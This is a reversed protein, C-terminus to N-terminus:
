SIQKISVTTAASNTTSSDPEVTLAVANGAAAVMALLFNPAVADIIVSGSQTVGVNVGTEKKGIMSYPLPIMAPITAGTYLDIGGNEAYYSQYNVEYRGVNALTFLTGDGGNFFPSTPGFITPTATIVPAGSLDTTTFVFPQAPQRTSPQAGIQSFQASSISIGAGAVGTAGALGTAGTSGAGTSGTNGTSGPLGTAGIAGTAGLGGTPGTAGTNTALGPIGQLGTPGLGGTSGTAGTNVATGPVGPLGTAGTLGRCGRPGQCGRRESRTQLKYYALVALVLAAIAILLAVIGLSASWLM